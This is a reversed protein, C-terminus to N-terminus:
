EVLATKVSKVFRNHEQEQLESQVYIQICYVVM